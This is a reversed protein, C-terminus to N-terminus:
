PRSLTSIQWSRIMIHAKSAFALRDLYCLHIIQEPDAAQGVCQYLYAFIEGIQMERDIPFATFFHDSQLQQLHDVHQLTSLPPAIYAHEFHKKLDPLITLLHRFMTGDPDNFPFALAPRM